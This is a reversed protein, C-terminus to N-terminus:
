GRPSRAQNATPSPSPKSKRLPGALRVDQCEIAETWWGELVLQDGEVKWKLRFRGNPQEDLAYEAFCAQSGAGLTGEVPIPKGISRYQYNGMVFGDVFVFEAEIPAAKEGKGIQGNLKIPVGEPLGFSNALDRRHKTMAAADAVDDLLRASIDVVRLSPRRTFLCNEYHRLTGQKYGGGISVLLDESGDGDYDGRALIRAAEYEDENEYSCLNPELEWTVETFKFRKGRYCKDDSNILFRADHSWDEAKFGSRTSPLLHPIVAYAALRESFHSEMVMAVTTHAYGGKTRADLWESVTRCERISNDPMTMEVTYYDGPAYGKPRWSRLATTCDPISGIERLYDKNWWVATPATPVSDDAPTASLTASLLFVPAIVRLMSTVDDSVTMERQLNQSESYAQEAQDSIGDFVHHM